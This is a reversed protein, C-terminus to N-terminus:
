VVSSSFLGNTSLAHSARSVTDPRKKIQLGKPILDQSLYESLTEKHLRYRLARDRLRYTEWSSEKLKDDIDEAKNDYSNLISEMSFTPTLSDSSSDDDEQRINIEVTDPDATNLIREASANTNEHDFILIM